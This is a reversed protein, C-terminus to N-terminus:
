IYSFLNRIVEMGALFPINILFHNLSHGRCFGEFM